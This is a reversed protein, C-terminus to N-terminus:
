VAIYTLIGGWTGSVSPTALLAQGATTKMWGDENKPLVVGSGATNFLLAGSLTTAASFFTISGSAPAVMALSLLVISKGSATAVVVASASTTISLIAQQVQTSSGQYVVVGAQQTTLVSGIVATGAPLSVVHGATTDWGVIQVHLM